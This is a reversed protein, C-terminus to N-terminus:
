NKGYLALFENLSATCLAHDAPPLTCTETWSGGANPGYYTMVGDAPDAGGSPTATGAVDPPDEFGMQSGSIAYVLEARPRAHCTYGYTTQLEQGAAPFLACALDMTCGFCASTEQATVALTPDGHSLKWGTPGSAPISRAMPSAIISASGDAADVARCSWGSPAVIEFIGGGDAYVSVQNRLGAPLSLRTSAPLPPLQQIVGYSTPCKVVAVEATLMVPQSTPPSTTTTTPPLTSPSTVAMSTTSTTPGPGIVHVSTAGGASVVSALGFAVAAVVVAGATTLAARRRLRRRGARRRVEALLADRDRGVNAPETSM